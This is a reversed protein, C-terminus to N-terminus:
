RGCVRLTIYKQFGQTWVAVRRCESWWRSGGRGGLHPAEKHTLKITINLPNLDFHDYFLIPQVHGISSWRFWLKIIRAGLGGLSEWAGLVELTIYKQFGQTWVEVRRCESWWRTLITLHGSVSTTLNERHLLFYKIFMGYAQNQKIDM